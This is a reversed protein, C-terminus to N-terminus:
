QSGGVHRNTVLSGPPVLHLHPAQRFGARDPVVALVLLDDIILAHARLTGDTAVVAPQLRGDHFVRGDGEHLADPLVQALLDAVARDQDGHEPMARTQTYSGSLYRCTLVPLQGRPSSLEATSRPTTESCLLAVPLRATGAASRPGADAPPTTDLLDPAVTSM